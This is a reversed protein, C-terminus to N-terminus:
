PLPLCGHLNFPFLCLLSLQIPPFCLYLLADHVHLSTNVLIIAVGLLSGHLSFLSSCSHWCFLFGWPLSFPWANTASDVHTFYAVYPTSLANGFIFDYVFLHGHLSTPAPSSPPPPHDPIEPSPSLAVCGKSGGEGGGHWKAAHRSALALGANDRM